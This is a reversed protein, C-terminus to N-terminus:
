EFSHTQRTLQYNNGQDHFAEADVCKTQGIVPNTKTKDNCGPSNFRLM